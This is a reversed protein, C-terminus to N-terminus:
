GVEARGDAYFYTGPGEYAGSKFVGVFKNGSDETYCGRGEFADNVFSGVYSEGQGSRWEGQGNLRGDGIEGCYTSGDPFRFFNKGPDSQPPDPHRAASTASSSSPSPVHRRSAILRARLSRCYPSLATQRAPCVTRQRFSFLNSYCSGVKYSFKCIYARKPLLMM